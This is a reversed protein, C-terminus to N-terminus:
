KEYLCKENFKEKIYPKIKEWCSESCSLLNREEKPNFITNNLIKVDKITNSNKIFYNGYVSRKCCHLSENNLKPLISLFNNKNLIMPTHLEYSIPNEFGQNKLEKFSNEVLRDYNTLPRHNKHYFSVQNKLLGRNLNLDQENIPNLIFFDDNMLIFNNSLENCNCAFKLHNTTTEYRSNLKNNPIYYVKEENIFEPCDGIIFVKNHPLNVLSRLSYRLEENLLTKKVLYVIDMNVM